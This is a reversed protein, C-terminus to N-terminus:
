LVAIKDTFLCNSAVVQPAQLGPPVALGVPTKCFAVPAIARSVPLMIFGFRALCVPACALGVTSRVLPGASQEKRQASTSSDLGIPRWISSSSLLGFTAAPSALRSHSTGRGFASDM